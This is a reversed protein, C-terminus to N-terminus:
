YIEYVCRMDGSLLHKVRQVTVQEGFLKQFLSLESRCFGQCKQAAACIPCHHEILLYRNNAQKQYTAMYGEQKRIEALKKVQQELSHCSALQAIYAELMKEERQSIVAELANGGLASQISDILEVTLFAHTDPFNDQAKRTLIWYKKPRGVGESAEYTRLEGKLALEELHKRAGMSTMSLMNALSGATQPGKTKLLFLIKSINESVPM